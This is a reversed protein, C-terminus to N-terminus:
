AGDDDGTLTEPAEPEKPEEDPKPEEVPPAETTSTSVVEEKKPEPRPFGPMVQSVQHLTTCGCAPDCMIAWDNFGGQKTPCVMSHGKLDTEKFWHGCGTCRFRVGAPLAPAKPAAPTAPAPPKLDKWLDSPKATNPSIYEKLKKPWMLPHKPRPQNQVGLPLHYLRYEYNGPTGEGSTVYVGHRDDADMRDTTKPWDEMVIDELWEGLRWVALPPLTAYTPIGKSLDSVASGSPTAAGAYGVGKRKGTNPDTLFDYPTMPKDQAGYQPPVYGNLMPDKPNLEKPKEKWEPHCTVARVRIVTKEEAKTTTTM